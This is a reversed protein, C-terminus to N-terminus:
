TKNKVKKDRKSKQTSTNKSKVKTTLRQKIEKSSTRSTKKNSSKAQTKSKTTKSSKKSKNNPKISNFATANIPIDSQFNTLTPHKKDENELSKKIENNKNKHISDNQKEVIEDMQNKILNIERYFKNYSEKIQGYVKGVRYVFIPLDQPRVFILIGVLIMLIEFFGLGFM